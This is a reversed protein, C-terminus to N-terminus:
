LPVDRGWLLCPAGNPPACPTHDDARGDRSWPGNRRVEHLGHLHMRDLACGYNSNIDSSSGDLCAQHIALASDAEHETCGAPRAVATVADHRRRRLRNLGNEGFGELLANM